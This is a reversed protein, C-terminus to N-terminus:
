GDVHKHKVNQWYYFKSRPKDCIQFNTITKEETEMSWHKKWSGLIVSKLPLNHNRAIIIQTPSSTAPESALSSGQYSASDTRTNSFRPESSGKPERVRQQCCTSRSTSIHSRQMKTQKPCWSSTQISGRKQFYQQKLMANIINAQVVVVKRTFRKLLRNIIKSCGPAKQQNVM